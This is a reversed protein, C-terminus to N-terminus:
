RERVSGGAFFLRAARILSRGARSTKSINDFTASPLMHAGEPLLEWAARKQMEVDLFKIGEIVKSILRYGHLSKWWPKRYKNYV